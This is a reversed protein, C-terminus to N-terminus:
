FNGSVFFHELITLRSFEPGWKGLIFLIDNTLERFYIICCKWIKLFMICLLVQSLNWLAWSENWLLVKNCAFWIRLSLFYGLTICPFRDLAVFIGTWNAGAIPISRPVVYEQTPTKWCPLTLPSTCLLSSPSIAQFLLSSSSIPAFFYPPPLLHFTTPSPSISSSTFKPGKKLKRSSLPHSSPFVSTRQLRRPDWKVGKTQSLRSLM